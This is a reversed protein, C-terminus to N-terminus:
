VVRRLMHVQGCLHWVHDLAQLLPQVVVHSLINGGVEGGIVGGAVRVVEVTRPCRAPALPSNGALNHFTLCKASQKQSILFSWFRHVKIVACWEKPSFFFTM